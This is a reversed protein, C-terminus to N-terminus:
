EGTSIRLKEDVFSQLRERAAGDLKDCTTLIWHMFLLMSKMDRDFEGLNPRAGGNQQQALIYEMKKAVITQYRGIIKNEIERMDPVWDEDCRYGSEAMVADFKDLESQKIMVASVIDAM